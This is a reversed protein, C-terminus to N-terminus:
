AALTPRRSRRRKASVAILGAGALLAVFAFQMVNVPESGTTPLRGPIGGTAPPAAAASDIVAPPPVPGAGAVAITTTTTTTSTTTTTTTTAVAGSSSVIAQPQPPNFSTTAPGPCDVDTTLSTAKISFPLHAPYHGAFPPLNLILSLTATGFPEEPDMFWPGLLAHTASDTIDIRVDFNPCFCGIDIVLRFQPPLPFPRPVNLLTSTVYPACDRYSDASVQTTPAIFVVSMLVAAIAVVAKRM